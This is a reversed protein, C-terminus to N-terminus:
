SKAKSKSKASRAKAKDRKRGPTDAMSAELAAMLDDVDEEPEEQPAEIQKGSAKREILDLM